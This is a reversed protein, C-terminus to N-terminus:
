RFDDELYGEEWEGISVKARVEGLQDCELTVSGAPEASTALNAIENAFIWAFTRPLWWVLAGPADARPWLGPRQATDEPLEELTVETDTSFVGAATLSIPGGQEAFREFVAALGLLEPKQGLVLLIPHFDSPMYSMRLM